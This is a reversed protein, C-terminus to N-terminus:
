IEVKWSKGNLKINDWKKIEEVFNEKKKKNRKHAHKLLEKIAKV